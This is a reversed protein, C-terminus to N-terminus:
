PMGGAPIAAAVGSRCSRPVLWRRNTRRRRYRGRSAAGGHGASTADPSVLDGTGFGILDCDSVLAAAALEGCRSHSYARALMASEYCRDDRAYLEAVMVRAASPGSLRRGGSAVVYHENARAMANRIHLLTAMGRKGSSSWQLKRASAVFLRKSLEPSLAGDDVVTSTSSVRSSKAGENSKRTVTRPEAALMDTAPLEFYVGTLDYEDTSFEDNDAAWADMRKQETETLPPPHFLRGLGNGSRKKRMEQQTRSHAKIRLRHKPEEDRSSDGAGPLMRVPLELLGCEKSREASGHIGALTSSVASAVKRQVLQKHWQTKRGADQSEHPVKGGGLRGLTLQRRQLPTGRSGTDTTATAAPSSTAPLGIRLLLSRRRHQTPKSLATEADKRVAFATRHQPANDATGEGNAGCPAHDLSGAGSGNGAAAMASSPFLSAAASPQEEAMAGADTSSARDNASDAGFEVLAGSCDQTALTDDSEGGSSEDGSSSESTRRESTHQQQQQLRTPMDEQSGIVPAASDTSGLKPESRKSVLYSIVPISRRRLSKAGADIESNLKRSLKRRLSNKEPARSDDGSALTVTKIAPATVIKPAEHWRLTFYSQRKPKDSALYEKELASSYISHTDPDVTSAALANRRSLCM